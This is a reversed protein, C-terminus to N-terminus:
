VATMEQMAGIVECECQDEGSVRLGCFDRSWVCKNKRVVWEIDTRRFDVNGLWQTIGAFQLKVMRVGTKRYLVTHKQGSCM